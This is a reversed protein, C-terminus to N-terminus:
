SRPTPGFRRLDAVPAAPVGVLRAGPAADRTVVGGAAVTVGDDLAVNDVVVAGIGLLAGAAIRAHGAVLTGASLWARPGVVAGHSVYVLSGLKADDAVLTHSLMGRCITAQAGVDVRDGVRVGGLHPFFRRRGDAGDHYALGVWGVVANPGITCEAGITTDDYVVAGPEIRTRAGIVVNAGISALPSICASSDIGSDRATGPGPAAPRAAGPLLWEVLDVFASRMDAVAMLTQGARLAAAMGSTVVVISARSAAVAAADDRDCFALSGETADRLGAIGAVQCTEDGLVRTGVPLRAALAAATVGAALPRVFPGAAGRDSM